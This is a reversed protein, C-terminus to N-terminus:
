NEDIVMMAIYDKYHITNSEPDIAASLMEEMEEQSFPEGEETMYKILEEKSLFGRKAPDLVEFARLLIDEPIPRYRRELLVETMVPLFKEYRIYGTPEEEEVEAILDHLEGESPCCGLSRIITGIERVDVTNNSEQDFVEFAEKIKKHLEAVAIETSERDREDAM